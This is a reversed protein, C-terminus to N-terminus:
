CMLSAPCGRARADAASRHQLGFVGRSYDHSSDARSGPLMFLQWFKEELTMRGILDRARAEVPLAPDRYAQARASTPLLALLM